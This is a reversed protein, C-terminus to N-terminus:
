CSDKFKIKNESTETKIVNVIIYLFLLSVQGFQATFDKSRDTEESM